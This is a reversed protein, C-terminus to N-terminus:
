PIYPLQQLVPEILNLVITPFLGIIILGIALIFVPVLLRTPENIKFDSNPSGGYMKNLLRLIYASQIVSFSVGIIALWILNAEIAATFVLYKAFFGALPPIGAFSLLGISLCFSTLPLKRGLGSFDELTEFGMRNLIGVVMFCLATSIGGILFFFLNGMIGFVDVSTIAILNYGIDAICIYTILYKVNTQTLARLNGVVMTLVAFIALMFTWNLVMFPTLIYILVRLLIYYSGQDVLASLFASSSSPAAKYADPLWMHFPVIAAEIAFGAAIFTFALLLISKDELGILVQKVAWFNLTGSLGFVISIGYVIFASAITIMILYKLTAHLSLPNKAYIILLSSGVAAAEWFIFLTLFDGSLATGILCGTVLLILSYYRESFQNKPEIYFLCFFLVLMGVIAFIIVMYVSIADVLFSSSFISLIGIGWSLELFPRPLPLSYFKLALNTVALAVIGFVGILWITSLIIANPQNKRIQGIIPITLLASIIFCITPLTVDLIDIM